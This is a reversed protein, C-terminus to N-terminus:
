ESVDCSKDCECECNSPNGISWKKGIRKKKVCANMKMGINNTIIFVAM